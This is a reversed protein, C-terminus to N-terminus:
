ATYYVRFSRHDAHYADQARGFRRQQALANKVRVVAPLDYEIERALAHLRNVALFRGEIGAGDGDARGKRRMVLAALRARVPLVDVEAKLVAAECEPPPAKRVIGVVGHRLQHIHQLAGARAAHRVAPKRRRQALRDAREQVFPVLMIRGGVREDLLELALDGAAKGIRLKGRALGHRRQAVALVIQAAAEAARGALRECFIERGQPEIVRPHQDLLVFGGRHGNAFDRQQGAKVVGGIEAADKAAFGAKGRAIIEM